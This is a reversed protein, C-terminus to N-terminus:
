NLLVEELEKINHVLFDPSTAKLKEETCFGWIVAATKIGAGKGAEVEHNSDGIFITEEKKFNNREILEHIVEAKDHIKAVVEGFINELGFRKIDPFLTEPPDSSLVAMSLGNDKLKRILEVIGPYADSEPCDKRLIVKYYLKQEEELTLKPYYKKWFNMYLQEWNKKLEELSIEKGGLKELMRNVVWVHAVVADKIVGSWDFIINKFM